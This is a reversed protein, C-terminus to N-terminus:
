KDSTIFTKKHFEGMSKKKVSNFGSCTFFMDALSTLQKLLQINQKWYFTKESSVILTGKTHTADYLIPNNQPTNDKKIVEENFFIRYFYLNLLDTRLHWLNMPLKNAKLSWLM